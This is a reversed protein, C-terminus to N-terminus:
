SRESLFGEERAISYDNDSPIAPIRPKVKMTMPTGYAALARQQDLWEKDADLWERFARVRAVAEKRKAQAAKQRGTAMARKHDETLVRTAILLEERNRSQLHRTAVM